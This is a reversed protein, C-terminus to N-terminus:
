QVNAFSGAEILSQANKKPLRLGFAGPQQSRKTQEKVANNLQPIAIKASANAPDLNFARIKAMISGRQEPKAVYQQVLKTHAAKAEDRRQEVAASGERAESVRSPQFGLAQVAVDYPTIKSAPLITRGAQTVVGKTALEYATM